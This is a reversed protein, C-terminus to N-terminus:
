HAGLLHVQQFLSGGKEELLHVQGAGPSTRKRPVLDACRLNQVRPESAIIMQQSHLAGLSGDAVAILPCAAWDFKPVGNSRAAEDWGLNEFENQPAADGAVCDLEIALSKPQSNHGVAVSDHARVNDAVTDVSVAHADVLRLSLLGQPQPVFAAHWHLAAAAEHCLGCRKWGVATNNDAYWCLESFQSSAREDQVIRASFRALVRTTRVTQTDIDDCHQMGHHKRLRTHLSLKRQSNHPALEHPQAIFSTEKIRTELKKTCM